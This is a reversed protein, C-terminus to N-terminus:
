HQIAKKALRKREWEPHLDNVAETFLGDLKEQKAVKWFALRRLFSSWSGEQREDRGPKKNRTAMLEPM